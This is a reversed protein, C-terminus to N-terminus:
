MMEFQCLIHELLRPGNEIKETSKIFLQVWEYLNLLVSHHCEGGM